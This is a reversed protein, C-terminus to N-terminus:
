IYSWEFYESQFSADILLVPKILASSSDVQVKGKTSGISGKYGIM